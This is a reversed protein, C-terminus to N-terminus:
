VPQSRRPIKRPKKKAGGRVASSMDGIKLANESALARFFTRQQQRVSFEPEIAIGKAVFEN